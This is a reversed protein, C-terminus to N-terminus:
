EGCSFWASAKTPAGADRGIIKATFDVSACSDFPVLFALYLLGNDNLRIIPRTENFIPKSRSPNTITLRTSYAGVGKRGYEQYPPGAIEVVVFLASSRVDNWRGGSNAAALLEEKDITGTNKDFTHVRISRITPQVTAAGDGFARPAALLLLVAATTAVRMTLM